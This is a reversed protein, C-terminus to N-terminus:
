AINDIQTYRNIFFCVRVGSLTAKGAGIKLVRNQWIAHQLATYVIPYCLLRYRPPLDLFTLNVPANELSIDQFASRPRPYTPSSSFHYALPKSYTALFSGQVHMVSACGRRVARKPRRRVAGDTEWDIETESETEAQAADDPVRLHRFPNM